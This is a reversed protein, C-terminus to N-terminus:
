LKAEGSLLPKLAQALQLRGHHVRSKVTGLPVALVESIESYSLEEWDRLLLVVRHKSELKQVALRVANERESTQIMELVGPREDAIEGITAAQQSIGGAVEYKRRRSKTRIWRHCVHSALSYLWTRFRAKGQFTESSRFVQLFVDQALDEADNRTAGTKWMVFQFIRDQYKQLLLDMAGSKGARHQLILKEDSFTIM